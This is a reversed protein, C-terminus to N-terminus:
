FNYRLGAKYTAGDLDGVVGGITSQCNFGFCDVDSTVDWLWKYGIGGYVDFNPTFSYGLELGVPLTLFEIDAEIIEAEGWGYGLAATVSSYINNNQYFKYQIGSSLENYKVDSETQHEYKEYASFNSWSYSVGLEFGKLKQKETYEPEVNNGSFGGFFSVGILDKSRGTNSQVRNYKSPAAVPKGMPEPEGYQVPLPKDALISTSFIGLLSIALLKKM